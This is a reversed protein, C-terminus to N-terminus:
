AHHDGPTTNREGVATCVPCDPDRWNAVPHHRTTAAWLDASHLIPEVGAGTWWRLADAVQWAAVMHVAPAIVGHTAAIPEPRPDDPDHFCRLCPGHGPLIALACGYAEVVGGYFYPLQQKVCADNVVHRTAFNDCGDLVLDVDVLLDDVTDGDVHLHHPEIIVRSDIARLVEAAAEVKPRATAAHAETFLSQRPLNSWEVRDRDVLRLFGIGCRVLMDAITTGLAGSGVVLARGAAIRAQGAAGIAWFRQQRSYRDDQAM